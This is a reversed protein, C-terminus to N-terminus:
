VGSQRDEGAKGGRGGIRGTGARSFDRGFRSGRLEREHVGHDEDEVRGTVSVTAPETGNRASADEVASDLVALRETFRRSRSEAQAAACVAARGDSVQWCRA